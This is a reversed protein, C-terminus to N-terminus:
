LNRLLNYVQTEPSETTSLERLKYPITQAMQIQFSIQGVIKCTGHFTLGLFGNLNEFGFMSYAWLPGWLRVHSVTHTLSHMNATYANLSYLDGATKVFTCLMNNAKDLDVLKVEDSLLIHMASVLLSLHHVYEPPLFHCLIPLCYFLMWAKFESAKYFSLLEISRPLRQIETPPKVKSLLKNITSIHRRLSYKEAHFKQDFWFKMMNKYVGELVSHM